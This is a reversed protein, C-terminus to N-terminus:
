LWHGPLWPADPLRLYLMTKFLYTLGVALVSPIVALRLPRREGLLALLALSYLFIAVAAGIYSWLLVLLVALLVISWRRIDTASGVEPSVTETGATEEVSARRANNSWVSRGVIVALLALLVVTLALPFASAEPSVSYADGWYFATCGLMLAPVILERGIQGTGQDNRSKM